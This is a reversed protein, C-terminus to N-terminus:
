LFLDIFDTAVDAYVAFLFQQNPTPAECAADLCDEIFSQLDDLLFGIIDINEILRIVENAGCAAFVRYQWGPDCGSRYIKKPFGYYQERHQYALKIAKEKSIKRM